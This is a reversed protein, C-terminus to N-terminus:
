NRAFELFIPACDGLRKQEYRTRVHDPWAARWDDATEATWTFDPSRAFRELTWAAYDSVDTAFRVLGGPALVRAFEAISEDNVLRRKHHRTKPWPDPFLVYLRGVSADPLAGLVERADGPHIRVNRASAEVVHRLASAAGNLFPEAGLLLVEPHAAAQAALHEGAGFGLEVWTDRVGPMLAAPDLPGSLDLALSPLLDDMLAARGPRLPRGKIRGFTRLPRESPDSM